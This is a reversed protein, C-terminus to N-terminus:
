FTEHHENDLFHNQPAHFGPWGDCTYSQYADLNEPNALVIGIHFKSDEM